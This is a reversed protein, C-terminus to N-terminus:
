WFSIDVAFVVAVAVLYDKTANLPVMYLAISKNKNIGNNLFQWKWHKNTKLINEETESNKKREKNIQNVKEIMFIILMLYAVTVIISIFFNVIGLISDFSRYKLGIFALLVINLQIGFIYNLFFESSLFNNLFLIFRVLFCRKSKIEEQKIV